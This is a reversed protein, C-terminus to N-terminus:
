VAWIGDRVSLLINGIILLLYLYLLQLEEIM